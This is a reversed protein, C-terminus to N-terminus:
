QDEGLINICEELSDWWYPITIGFENKIKSKNLLSYHSRVAPTPYQDTTIPNITWEVNSLENGIQGNAGTVVFRLM